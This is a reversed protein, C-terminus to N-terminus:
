CKEEFGHSFDDGPVLEKKTPGRKKKGRETLRKKEGKSFKCRGSQLGGVFFSCEREKGGDEKERTKRVIRPQNGKQRRFWL